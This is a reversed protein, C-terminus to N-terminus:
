ADPQEMEMMIIIYTYKNLISGQGVGTKQKAAVLANM